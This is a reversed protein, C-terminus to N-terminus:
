FLIEEDLDKKIKKSTKPAKSKKAKKLHREEVVYIKSSGFPLIKYLKAGKAASTIPGVKPGSQIVTCFVDGISNHFRWDAAARLQVLSSDPYKPAANYEALVKKAYKNNCMKSWQSETPIFSEETLVQTALAQFYGTEKYYKAVVLAEERKEERYLVEWTQHALISEPSVKEEFKAVFELQRPSLSGRKNFQQTVSEVFGNEWDTLYQKNNNLNELRKQLNESL